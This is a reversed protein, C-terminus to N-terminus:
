ANLPFSSGPWLPGKEQSACHQPDRSIWDVSPATIRTLRTTTLFPVHFLKDMKMEMTLIAEQITGNTKLLEKGESARKPHFGQGQGVVPIHKPRDFEILPGDVM